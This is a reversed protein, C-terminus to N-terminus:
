VAHYRGDKMLALGYHNKVFVRLTHEAKERQSLKPALYWVEIRKVPTPPDRVVFMMATYWKFVEPDIHCVWNSIVNAHNTTRIEGTLEDIIKDHYLSLFNVLTTM